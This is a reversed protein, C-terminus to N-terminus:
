LAHGERLGLVSHFHGGLEDFIWRVSGEKVNGQKWGELLFACALHLLQYKGSIRGGQEVGTPADEFYNEFEPLEEKLLPM